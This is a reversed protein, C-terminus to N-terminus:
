TQRFGNLEPVVESENGLHGSAKQVKIWEDQKDTVSINKEGDGYSPGGDSIMMNEYKTTHGVRSRYVEM